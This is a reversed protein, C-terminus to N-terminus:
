PSRRPYRPRPYASSPGGPPRACSNAMPLYPTPNPVFWVPLRLPSRTSGFFYWPRTSRPLFVPQNLRLAGPAGPRETPQCLNSISRASSPAVTCKRPSPTSPRGMVPALCTSRTQTVMPEAAAPLRTPLAQISSTFTSPKGQRKSQALLVDSLLPRNSQIFSRSIPVLESAVCIVCIAVTDCASPEVAVALSPGHAVSPEAM